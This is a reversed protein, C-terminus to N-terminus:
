RDLFTVRGLQVAQGGCTELVELRVSSVCPRSNSDFVLIEFRLTHWRLPFSAGKVTHLIVWTGAPIGCFPEILLGVLRWSVPDREPHDNASQVEYCWISQGSTDDLDAQLWSSGCAHSDIWKGWPECGYSSLHAVGERGSGGSDDKRASWHVPIVRGESADATDDLAFIYYARTPHGARWLM